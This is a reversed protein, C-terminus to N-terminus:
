STCHFEPTAVVYRLPGFTLRVNAHIFLAQFAFVLLLADFTARSFGFAYFPIVLCSRTFAQDVPHLRAAALWDMEQISHHVKHFRWLWPVSHTARHAWYQLVEALLLAKVAQLWAPQSAIAARLAGPVLAHRVTGVTVVALVIGIMSLVNNMVFHVVDTAWGKRFVRQAHLSWLKEIPIFILALLVLAFVARSRFSLAALFVVVTAITVLAGSATPRGEQPHAELPYTSNM